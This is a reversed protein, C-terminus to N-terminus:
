PATITMTSKTQQVTFKNLVNMGLLGDERGLDPIIIARVDHMEITGIILSEIKTLYGIGIGNATISQVQSYRELGAEEALSESVAVSTAGTDVLFTTAIGNISGKIRFHSDYDSHLTIQVSHGTRKITAEGTSFMTYNAIYAVLGIACLWGIILFIGGLRRSNTENNHNDL